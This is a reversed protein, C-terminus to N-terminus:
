CMSLDAAFCPFLLYAPEIRVCIVILVRTPVDSPARNVNEPGLMVATVGEFRGM